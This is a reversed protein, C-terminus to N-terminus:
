QADPGSMQRKIEAAVAGYGMLRLAQGYPMEMLAAAQAPDMQGLARETDGPYGDGELLVASARAVLGVARSASEAERRLADSVLVVVARAYSVLAAEDRFSRPPDVALADLLPGATEASVDAETVPDGGSARGVAHVM